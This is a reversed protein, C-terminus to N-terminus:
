PAKRPRVRTTLTNSRYPGITAYVIYEAEEAPLGLLEGLDPNFVEGILMDPDLGDDPDPSPIANPVTELKGSYAEHTRANVAVFLIQDVFHGRLNMFSQKFRCAGCLVFRGGARSLNGAGEFVVEEPTNILLGEFDFGDIQPTCENSELQATVKSFDCKRNIVHAMPEGRGESEPREGAGARAQEGAGAPARREAGGCGGSCASVLVLPLVALLMRRGSRVPPLLRM